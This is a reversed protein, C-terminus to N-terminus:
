LSNLYSSLAKYDSTSLSGDIASTSGHNHAIQQLAKYTATGPAGDIPGTYGYSRLGTQVGKWAPISMYGDCPYAYGHQKAYWQLRRWFATNPVGTSITVEIAGPKTNRSDHTGDGCFYHWSNVRTGGPTYRHLHFHPAYYYDIGDGSAGSHGILQGQKVYQGDSVAFSSLHMYQDYWGTSGTYISLTRGGTGGNALSTQYARGSSNAYLPTGYPCNHDVGGHSGRDLHHQWSIDPDYSDDGVVQRRNMDQYTWSTTEKAAPPAPPSVTVSRTKSDNLGLADTVTLKVSYAGGSTYSHTTTVGSGTHGDNFDWAYTKLTSDSSSSGSANFSAKLDTTVYSFSALPPTPSTVLAVTVSHTVVDTKGTVDTIQLAVPYTGAAKYTHTATIGYSNSSGTEGWYWTYRSIPNFDSSEHADVSVTLANASVTFEADPAGAAIVTQTAFTQAGQNDTVILTVSYEGGFEYSHNSQVGSDIAGDGFDWAYSVISGDPDSSGSADLVVNLGSVDATFTAVPARNLDVQVTQQTEAQNGSTDTVILKVAYNGVRAYTRTVQTQDTVLSRSGDGFEWQYTAITGGSEFSGSADFVVPSGPSDQNATFSAIPAGVTASTGGPATWTIHWSTGDFTEREIAM